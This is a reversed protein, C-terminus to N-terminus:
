FLNHLYCKPVFEFRKNRLHPYYELSLANWIIFLFIKTKATCLAPGMFWSWGRAAMTWSGRFFVTKSWSYSLRQPFVAKWCLLQLM